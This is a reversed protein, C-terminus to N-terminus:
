PVWHGLGFRDKPPNKGLALRYRQFIRQTDDHSQNSKISPSEARDRGPHMTIANDDRRAKPLAFGALM